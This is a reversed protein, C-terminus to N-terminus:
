EISKPVRSSLTLFTAEFSWVFNATGYGANVRKKETLSPPGLPRVHDM